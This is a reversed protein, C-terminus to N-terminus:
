RVCYGEASVRVKHAILPFYTITEHKTLVGKVKGKPCKKALKEAFGGNRELRRGFCDLLKEFSVDEGETQDPTYACRVPCFPWLLVIPLAGDCSFRRLRNWHEEFAVFNVGPRQVDALLLNFPAIHTWRAIRLGSM